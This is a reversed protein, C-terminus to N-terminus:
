FVKTQQNFLNDILSCFPKVKNLNNYLSNMELNINKINRCINNFVYEFSKPKSNYKNKM